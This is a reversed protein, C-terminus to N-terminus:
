EGNSFLKKFGSKMKYWLWDFTEDVQEVQGTVNATSAMYKGNVVTVNGDVKGEIVLNGNEVVLDKKIVTNEPVTVTEGEVILQPDKTVAFQQSPNSVTLLSGSMLLVFVAAAILVPHRRLFRQVGRLVKQKHPLRVMVNQAFNAPLAMVAASKIFAIVNTLESMHKKCDDCQKLHEKLVVEHEQSIDGDLYEHMYEVVHEPCKMM